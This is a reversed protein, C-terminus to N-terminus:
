GSGITTLLEEDSVMEEVYKLINIRGPDYTIVLSGTIPNASVNKIGEPVPLEAVKKLTEISLHRIIPVKLRIRGPVHHVVKYGIM